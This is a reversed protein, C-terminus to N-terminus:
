HDGTSVFKKLFNSESVPELSRFLFINRVADALRARQEDSKPFVEQFSCGNPVSLM